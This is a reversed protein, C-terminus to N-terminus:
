LNLAQYTTSLQLIMPISGGHYPVEPSWVWWSCQPGKSFIKPACVSIKPACVTLWCALWINENRCINVTNSICIKIISASIVIHQKLNLWMKNCQDIGVLPRTSPPDPPTADGKPILITFVMGRRFCGDGKGDGTIQILSHPFIVM